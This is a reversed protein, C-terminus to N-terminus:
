AGRESLEFTVDGTRKEPDLKAGGDDAGDPGVSYIICRHDTKRMRMPKGDFPDTPVALMFDPTLDDLKAPFREHKIRYREMALAIRVAQRRADGETAMENLRGFRPLTVTTLLGWHHRNEFERLEKGTEYFPRAILRRIGRSRWRHADLDDTLFFLRYAWTLAPAALWRRHSSMDPGEECVDAITVNGNGVEYFTTLRLAEEMRMTRELLRRFSLSDEVHLAALDESSVARGALISQLTEAALRDVNISVLLVVCPLDEGLHRSIAFISGIDQLAAHMNGDAAKVRADLSLLRAAERMPPVEPLLMWWTPWFYDHEFYCGPKGAAEHLLNITTAHSRLLRRLDPDKLDLADPAAQTWKKWKQMLDKDWHPRPPFDESPLAELAREYVLAANDRDPIRPPAVSLALTGAETRLADLQQRAALDLNWFTMLHLALAVALAVTLKGRPWTGAVTPASLGEVGRLGVISLWVIGVLVGVALTWAPNFWTGITVERFELWAAAITLGVYISLMAMAVIAWIANRLWRRQLRGTDALIVAAFLMAVILNEIWLLAYGM